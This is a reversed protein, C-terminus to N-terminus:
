EPADGDLAIASLLRGYSAENRHCARRYSFFLKEEAVTDRGVDEVRDIGLRALRERVYAPLDFQFRGPRAGAAFFRESAPNEALFPAPFEPGVEYSAQAICPGIAARLRNPTAGLAAMAAVAAEVVGALAGKWGAHAAAVVGAAPDALLLPACDATLVGVVVGPRATVVVDAHPRHGEPWPGAVVEVASGHVQYPTCLPRRALGLSAVARARNERVKDGDDGSGLGCNLSAYIGESVGGARTLFGHRLGPVATLNDARIM